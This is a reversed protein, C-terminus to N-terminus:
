TPTPTPPNNDGFSITSSAARGGVIITPLTASGCDIVYSGGSKWEATIGTGALMTVDVSSAGNLRIFACKNNSAFVLAAGQYRTPDTLGITIYQHASTSAQVQVNGIAAALSAVTPTLSNIAITNSNAKQTTTALTNGQTTVTSQLSTLSTNLERIDATNGEIDKQMIGTPIIWPCIGLPGETIGRADKVDSQQLTTQGAGIYVRALPLENETYTPFTPTAAPTGKRISVGMERTSRNLWLYVLDYRGLSNHAPDLTFTIDGDNVIKCGQIFAQGATVKIGLGSTVFVGFQENYVFTRVVGDGIADALYATFDDASYTRDYVGGSQVADFFFYTIAM